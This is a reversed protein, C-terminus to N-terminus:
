YKGKESTESLMIGELGMQRTAFQLIKENKIALCYEILYIQWLKKIWEGVSSYKPQKWTKAIFLIAIFM